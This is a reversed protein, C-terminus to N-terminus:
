LKEVYRIGRGIHTEKGEKSEWELKGVRIRLPELDSRSPEGGKKTFTQSIIYAFCDAIELGPTISSDAFFITPLLFTMEKGKHHGFRFGWFQKALEKDEKPGINDFVLTCFIEKKEDECKEKVYKNVRELLYTYWRNFSEKIIENPKQAVTAFVRVGLEESLNILDSIAPFIIKSFRSIVYENLLERGKLEFFVPSRLFGPITHGALEGLKDGKKRKYARWDIPLDTHQLEKFADYLEGCLTKKVQFVGEHLRVLNSKELVIGLNTPYEVDSGPELKGSEDVFLIM